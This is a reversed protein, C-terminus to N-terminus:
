LTNPFFSIIDDEVSICNVDIENEVFRSDIVIFSPEAILNIRTM